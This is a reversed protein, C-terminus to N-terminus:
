LVATGHGSRPTPLPPGSCWEDKESNYVEMSTLFQNGNFGGIAYLKSAMAVVSMASRPEILSGVSQWEDTETSYREVKSVQTNECGGIAFVYPGLSAAGLGSRPDPLPRLSTWQDIQPDYVEMADLKETGSCGGIVYIKGNCVTCGHGSRAVNMPAVYRWSNTLPSYREVTNLITRQQSGGTVYIYGDLSVAGLRNRPTRLSPGETWCNQEIDFIHVFPTDEVPVDSNRHHARGGLAFLRKELAVVALGSRAAPLNPQSIWSGDAANFVEFNPLSSIHYGGIVYLVSSCTSSGRPPPVRYFFKKRNLEKVINQLYDVCEPREQILPCTRIVEELYEVSSFSSRLVQLILRLSGKRGSIDHRIWRLCAELLLADNRVSFNDNKIIHLMECLQMELFEDNQCVKEFHEYIYAEAKHQLKRLSHQGSFRFIGICNCPDLQGELYRACAETVERIQLMNGAALLECVNDDNLMRVQGSYAFKLIQLMIIKSLGKIQIREKSADEFRSTFMARFYPSAAALVVRHARIPTTDDELQIEVDCMKEQVWYTHMVSLSRTPFDQFKPVATKKLSRNSDREFRCIYGYNRCGTASKCVDDIESGSHTREDLLTGNFM